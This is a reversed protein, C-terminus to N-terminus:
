QLETKTGGLARCVLTIFSTSDVIVQEFSSTASEREVVGTERGLVM